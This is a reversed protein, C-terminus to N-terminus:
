MTFFSIIYRINFLIMIQIHFIISMVLLDDSSRIARVNRKDNNKKYFCISIQEPKKQPM